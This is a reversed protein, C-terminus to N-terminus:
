NNETTKKIRQQLLGTLSLLMVKTRVTIFLQIKFKFFEVMLKM